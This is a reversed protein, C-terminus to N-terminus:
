GPRGDGNLDPVTPTPHQGTTDPLFRDMLRAAFTLLLGAATSVLSYILLHATNM